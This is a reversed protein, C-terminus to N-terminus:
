VFNQTFKCYFLKTSNAGPATSCFKERSNNYRLLNSHQGSGNVEVKTKYKCALGSGVLTFGWVPNWEFLLSSAKGMFILNPYFAGNGLHYVYSIVAHYCHIGYFTKYYLGMPLQYIQFNTERFSIRCRPFFIINRLKQSEM